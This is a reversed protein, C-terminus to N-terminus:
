TGFLFSSTLRPMTEASIDRHSLRGSRVQMPELLFHELGLGNVRTQLSHLMLCLGQKLRACTHNLHSSVNLVEKVAPDQNRLGALM